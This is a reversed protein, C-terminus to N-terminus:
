YNNKLIVKKMIQKLEMRLLKGNETLPLKKINFFIKPIIEHPFHNYLKQRIENLKETTSDESEVVCILIEGWKVDPLSTIAFPREIYPAIQKEIEEPFFKKGGSIIVNDKRGLIKFERSNLVEAIDNTVIKQWGPINIALTSSDSLSVSIDGLTRFPVQPEAVQRLAIHSATETMGYSEYVNLGTKVIEKRLASNIPGGGCLINKIKPLSFRNEILFKLQSPVVALLDIETSPSLISLPHNSPKEVTLVCGLELARVIMMKGGIFEPSIVLHLHSEPSLSFFSNTREASERVKDKPLKIAKPEGTSGSTHCEIFDSDNHWEKIFREVDMM